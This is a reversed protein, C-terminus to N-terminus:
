VSGERLMGWNRIETGPVMADDVVKFGYRQYIAVNKARNTDLYCSLHERDIRALMPRLLAGAHGTGQLEPNVGINELKWHRAPAHKRRVSNTFGGFHAIRRLPEKGIELAASMHVGPPLWVAVGEMTPSTACAEAHLVGYAVISRFFSPLEDKRQIADPFVYTFAPYDYFARALTEAASTVHVESLRVLRGQDDGTSDM